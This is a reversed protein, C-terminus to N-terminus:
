AQHVEKWLPSSSLKSEESRTLLFIGFSAQTTTRQAASERAMFSEVGSEWSPPPSIWFPLPQMWESIYM